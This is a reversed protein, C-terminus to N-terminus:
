HGLVQRTFPIVREGCSFLHEGFFLYWSVLEHASKRGEMDSSAQSSDLKRAWSVVCSTVLADDEGIVPGQLANNEGEFGVHCVAIFKLRHGCIFLCVQTILNFM